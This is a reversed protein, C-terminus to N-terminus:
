RGRPSAQLADLWQRPCHVLDEPVDVDACPEFEALDLGLRAARRRTEELVAPGGWSMGAFLEPAPRALGILVYGGDTAPVLVGDRGQELAAAALRLTEATLGPADSGLLIAPLGAELGVRMRQGLDGTPQAHLSCGFAEACEAFFPHAADPACWLELGGRRSAVAVELARRVLHRHLQAAGHAGLAPILRTKAQGPVPARAFVVLRM